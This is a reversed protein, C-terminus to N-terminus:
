SRKLDDNFYGRNEGGSYRMRLNAYDKYSIDEELNANRWDERMEEFTPQRERHHAKTRPPFTPISPQFRIPQPHSKGLVSDVNHGNQEGFIKNEALKKLTKEM